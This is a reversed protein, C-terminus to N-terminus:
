KGKPPRANVAVPVGIIPLSGPPGFQPQTTNALLTPSQAGTPLWYLQSQPVLRLLETPNSTRAIGEILAADSQIVTFAVGDGHGSISGIAYGEGQYLVTDLRTVLDFRHLSLEYVASEFPPYGATETELKLTLQATRTVYYLAASDAAWAVQDAAFDLVQSQGASLDYVSIKGLLSGALLRKNPALKPRSFPQAFPEAVGTLPNVRLVGLGNCARAILITDPTVWELLLDAGRDLALAQGAPDSTLKAQCLPIDLRPLARGVGAMDVITVTLPADTSVYAISLSDPSWAAPFLSAAVNNALQLPKPTKEIQAVYLTKRIPDTFLARKGDSSLRANAYRVRNFGLDADRTIPTGPLDDVVAAYLNGGYVHLFLTAPPREPETVINVANGTASPSFDVAIKQFVDAWQGFAPTPSFQLLRYGQGFALYISVRFSRPSGDACTGTLLLTRGTRAVAQRPGAITQTKNAVLYEDLLQDTTKGVPQKGLVTVLMGAQTCVQQAGVGLFVEADTRPSVLWKEPYSVSFQPSRYVALATEVKVNLPDCLVASSGDLNTHVEYIVGKVTLLFRYGPTKAPVFTQGKAPCGLGGDPFIEPSFTYSDVGPFPKPLQTGLFAIAKKAVSDADTQAHVPTLLLLFYLAILLCRLCRPIFRPVFRPRGCLSAGVFASQTPAIRRPRGGYNRFKIMNDM